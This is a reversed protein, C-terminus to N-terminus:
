DFDAILASQQAPTLQSSHQYNPHDILFELRAGSKLTAIAPASFEFRVFHVASTKDENSRELDEDAICAIREGDGARAFLCEEIGRLGALRRRREEVDPFELMFTAKLNRGTPILPNYAALEEAIAETEFIREVRLM